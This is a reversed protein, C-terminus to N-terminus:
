RWTCIIKISLGAKQAIKTQIPSDKAPILIIQGRRAEAYPLSQSNAITKFQKKVDDSLQLLPIPRGVPMINEEM